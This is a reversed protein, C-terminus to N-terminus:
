QKAILADITKQLRMIEEDKSAIIKEYLEKQTLIQQEIHQFNGQAGHNAGYFNMIIPEASMIDIPSVGLEAAIKELVATDLKSQNNEIRSYAAQTIGIKAAVNEQSFGRLERIAKIKAGYM